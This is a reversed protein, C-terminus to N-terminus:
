RGFLRALFGKPKQADRAAKEEERRKRTKEAELAMEEKQERKYRNFSAIIIEKAEYTTASCFKWTNPLFFQDLEIM